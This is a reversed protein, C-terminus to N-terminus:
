IGAEGFKDRLRKIRRTYCRDAADFSVVRECEDGGYELSVWLSEAPFLEPARDAWEVVCLGDGLLDEELGLDWAELPDGIRYLDIHHLTLRGVYRTAIVFSPSRAYEMVGLGQAIGQTLCTKGAGLNGTLLYVDGGKAHRGLSVGIAQTEQPSHTVLKLSTSM